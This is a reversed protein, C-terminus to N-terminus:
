RRSKIFACQTAIEVHAEDLDVKQPARSLEVVGAHRRVVVRFRLQRVPSSKKSMKSPVLNSGQFKYKALRKHTGQLAVEGALRTYFISQGM